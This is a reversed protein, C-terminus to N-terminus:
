TLIEVRAKISARVLNVVQVSRIFFVHQVKGKKSTVVEALDHNGDRIVFRKLHKGSDTDLEDRLYVLKLFGGGPENVSQFFEFVDPAKPPIRVPVLGATNVIPLELESSPTEDNNM